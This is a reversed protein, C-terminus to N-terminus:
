GHVSEINWIKVEVVFLWAHLDELGSEERYM